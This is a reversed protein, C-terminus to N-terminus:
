TYGYTSNTRHVGNKFQVIDRNRPLNNAPFSVPSYGQSYLCSDMANANGTAENNGEWTLRFKIYEVCQCRKARSQMESIHDSQTKPIGSLNLVDNSPVFFEEEAVSQVAVPENDMKDCSSLAVVTFMMLALSYVLKKIKSM